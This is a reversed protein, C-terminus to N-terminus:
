KNRWYDKGRTFGYDKKQKTKVQLMEEAEKKKNVKLQNQIMKVTPRLSVNRVEKCAREIEYKSYSRDSNKLSFISALAQRESQYHSLLYDVILTTSPGIGKAWQRANDPTQEAYLQHNEPMHETVTALQGFKGYLRTHTAIRMHNYYIEILNESLRIQVQKGIFEYPVSYFQSEISVHYDSRVKLNKWEALKYPTAPLPSLAFKEEEEFAIRRTGNKKTFSRHNFEELKQWIKQNFEGLTFCTENRLAAIIWTSIIGVSGEVSSKDKPARVRAPMCIINYHECMERYTVNLVLEKLTNRTVSTKLNDPVVVQPVGGFYTFARNHAGIWANLDMKLTAEAYSLQSCPLTAVFIYVPIKDGNDQDIIFGTTGAWDVEILEGPKRRIRMTAKFKDAYKKYHRLFSRYSYPIKGNSRCAVEYEHHLLALNVGSKALERHVYEFDIMGYGSGELSKHPYLFEELWQDNMENTLPIVVGKRKALELVEQIKPRGHGTSTAIGRASVGEDALELIKRYQIMCFVELIINDYRITHGKM